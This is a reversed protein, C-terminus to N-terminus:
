NEPKVYTSNIYAQLIMMYKTNDGESPHGWSPAGGAVTSQPLTYTFIQDAVDPNEAKYREIASRIQTSYADNMAGWLCYVFCDDGNKAFVNRLLRLYGEEFEAPDAGNGRENTGLNIVVIDAQRAFDYEENKTRNPSAHLYNKDFNLSGYIVGCGSLATISYDANLKEAVRYPYALTGDQDTYAGTHGGITGWGCSISDGLFEIHLDKDAPATPDITGDLTVSLVQATAITYGTVKILRITHRGYPIDKLEITTGQATVTFYLSDGNMVPVDDVYARFYCNASSKALFSIKSTNNLEVFFEIGSCSWDMAIHDDSKLYREGLVKIGLTNQNLPYTTINEPLPGTAPITETILEGCVTCNTQKSGDERMTPEKVTNWVGPTHPLTKGETTGCTSCTKPTTCTANNWSHEIPDGIKMGCNRCTFPAQCTAETWDHGLAEGETIGCSRCTKPIVCTAPTWSHGNAEGETAGCTSCTKPTDCTAPTWSHGNAEGETAGCTSCTKPTDCDADTWAHGLAEGETAGCVSCTKPTDCDADAWTHGLAEGETAGCVSCTKPTDCDADAWTHGTAEGETAGCVSCTKPTDCDADAWTHGLAEGETAGCVSCTKPTDCDADAWTHGLANGETVGCSCTKPSTCTPASFSHTHEPENNDNNQTDTVSPTDTDTDPASDCSTVSLLLFLCLIFLLISFKKNM